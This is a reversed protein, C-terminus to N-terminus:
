GTPNSGDEIKSLDAGEIHITVGGTAGETGSAIQQLATLAGTYSDRAALTGRAEEKSVLKAWWKLSGDRVQKLLQKREDETLEQYEAGTCAGTTELVPPVKERKPKKPM